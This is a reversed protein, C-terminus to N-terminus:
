RASCWGAPAPARTSRRDGAEEVEAVRLLREDLADVLHELEGVVEGPRAAACASFNPTSTRLSCMTIANMLRGFPSRVKVPCAADGAVGRRVEQEAQRRLEAARGRVLRLVAGAPEVRGVGLVLPAGARCRVTVAPRASRATAHREHVLVVRQVREMGPSCDCRKGARAPRARTDRRGPRAARCRHLGVLVVERRPEAHDPIRLAVAARRQAAGPADEVVREGPLSVEELVAHERRRERRQDLHLAGGAASVSRSDARARDGAAGVRKGGASVIM